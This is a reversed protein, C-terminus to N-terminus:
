DVQEHAEEVWGESVAIDLWCDLLWLAEQIRRPPRVADPIPVYWPLKDILYHRYVELLAWWLERTPLPPQGTLPKTNNIDM